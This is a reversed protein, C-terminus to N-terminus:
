GPPNGGRGGNLMALVRDVLLGAAGTQRKPDHLADWDIPLDCDRRLIDILHADARVSACATKVQAQADALPMHAALAFAAAEALILGNSSEINAQIRQHDADLSTCLVEAHGLAAGTAALMQPLVLWEQSWAAGDREHTHLLTQHLSGLLAGNHRALAVLTEASVPNAKNPMTSSGGGTGAHVEGIESQGLLILDAGIKGLSGSVLSLWGGLEAVNDRQNHWPLPPAHLGLRGALADMLAPGYPGYVSLSGVAGGLQVALLRPRLEGLRDRHRLLPALWGAIKLGLTTLTAQQSRTRAAIPTDRHRRACGALTDIITQLRADLVALTDRLQLVLGTDMIDQSTAGWHVFRQHPAGVAQRLAKVLAPVPIGDRATAAALGAPEPTLTEAATAIAAAADPPIIGLAGQAQALAAEVRLMAHLVASDSFTDTVEPAAFLGGLLISDFPGIAM